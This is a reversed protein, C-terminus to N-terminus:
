YCVFVPIETGVFDGEKQIVAEVRKKMSRTINRLMNVPVAKWAEEAGTILKQGTAGRYHIYIWEKM